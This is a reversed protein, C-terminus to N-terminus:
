HEIYWTYSHQRKKFWKSAPQKQDQTDNQQQLKWDVIKKKMEDRKESHGQREGEKARTADKEVPNPTIRLVPILMAMTQYTSVCLCINANLERAVANITHATCIWM